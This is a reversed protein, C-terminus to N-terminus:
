RLVDDVAEQVRLTQRLAGVEVALLRLLRDRNERVIHQLLVQVNICIDRLINLRSNLIGLYTGEYEIFGLELSTGVTGLKM